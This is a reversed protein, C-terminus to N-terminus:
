NNPSYRLRGSVRAVGRARPTFVVSSGQIDIEYGEELKLKGVNMSDHFAGIAYFREYAYWDAADPAYIFIFASESSERCSLSYEGAAIDTGVVYVGQHLETPSVSQKELILENLRDRLAFMESLTATETDLSITDACAVSLLLALCAVLASLKKM